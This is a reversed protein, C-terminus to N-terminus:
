CWCVWRWRRAPARGFVTGYTSVIALTLLAILPLKLWAPAKGPMRRHQWWRLALVGGLGLTLWWPLHPAHLVLVGLIALVTFDFARRGLPAAASRTRLRDLWSM